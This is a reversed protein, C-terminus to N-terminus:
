CIDQQSPREFTLHSQKKIKNLNHEMGLFHDVDSNQMTRCVDNMTGGSSSMRTGNLDVCHLRTISPDKINNLPNGIPEHLSCQQSKTTDLRLIPNNTCSNRCASKKTSSSKDQTNFHPSKKTKTTVFRHQHSTTQVNSNM